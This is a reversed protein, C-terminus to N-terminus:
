FGSRYSFGVNPSQKASSLLRRVDARSIVAFSGFRGEPESEFRPEGDGLIDNLTVQSMRRIGVGVPVTPRHRNIM